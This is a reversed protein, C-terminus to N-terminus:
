ANVGPVLSGAVLGTLPPVWFLVAGSLSVGVTSAAFVTRHSVPLHFLRTVDMFENGRFGLAPSLVLLGYVVAFGLHLAEDMTAAEWGFRRRGTAMGAFVVIGLLASAIAGLTVLLFTVVKRGPTATAQRRLITFHLRLLLRFQT